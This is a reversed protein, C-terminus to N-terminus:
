PRLGKGKRRAAPPRPATGHGCGPCSEVQLLWSFWRLFGEKRIAHVFLKLQCNPCRIAVGTWVFSIVVLGMGAIAIKMALEKGLPAYLFGQLLSMASGTFLLAMFTYIKWSQGTRQLLTM